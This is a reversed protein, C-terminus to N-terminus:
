NMIQLISDPMYWERYILYYINLLSYYKGSEMNCRYGIDVLSWNYSFKSNTSSHILPHLICFSDVCLWCVFQIFIDFVNIKSSFFIVGLKGDFYCKSSMAYLNIRYFIQNFIYGYEVINGRLWSTRKLGHKFFVLFCDIFIWSHLYSNRKPHFWITYFTLTYWSCCKKIVFLVLMKPIFVTIIGLAESRASQLLHRVVEVISKMWGFRDVEKVLTLQRYLRQLEKLIFSM